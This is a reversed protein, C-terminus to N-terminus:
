LIVELQSKLHYIFICVGELKSVFQILSNREIGEKWAHHEENHFHFSM